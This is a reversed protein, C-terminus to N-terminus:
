SGNGENAIFETTVRDVGLRTGDLSHTTSLGTDMRGLEMGNPDHFNCSAFRSSGISSDYIFKPSWPSANRPCTQPSRRASLRGAPNKPRDVFVHPAFRSLQANLHHHFQDITDSPNGVGVVQLPTCCLHLM